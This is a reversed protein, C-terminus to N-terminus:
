CPKSRDGVTTFAPPAFPEALSIFPYRGITRRVKGINAIFTKSGGQSVRVGFGPFREDWYDRQGKEPTQLSRLNTDM